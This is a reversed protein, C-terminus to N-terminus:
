IIINTNQQMVDGNASGPFPSTFLYVHHKVDVSVMCNILSLSFPPLPTYFHCFLPIIYRDSCQGCHRRLVNAYNYMKWIALWAATHRHLVGVYVYSLFNVVNKNKSSRHSFTIGCSGWGNSWGTPECVDCLVKKRLSKLDVSGQILCTCSLQLDVKGRVDCSTSNTTTSKNLRHNWTRALYTHTVPPNVKGVLGHIDCLKKKKGRQVWVIPAWCYMVSTPGGKWLCWM